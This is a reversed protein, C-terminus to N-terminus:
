WVDWWLNVMLVGRNTVWKECFVWYFRLFGNMLLFEAVVAFRAGEDRESGVSVV